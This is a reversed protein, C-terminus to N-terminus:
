RIARRLWSSSPEVTAMRKRRLKTSKKMKAACTRCDRQVPALAHECVASRAFGLTNRRLTYGSQSDRRWISVYVNQVRVCVHTHVYVCMVRARVCVCACMCMCVCM